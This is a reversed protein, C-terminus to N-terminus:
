AAPGRGAASGILWELARTLSRYPTRGHLSLWESRPDRSAQPRRGSGIVRTLLRSWLATNRSEANM